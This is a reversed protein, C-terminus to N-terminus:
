RELNVVKKVEPSGTMVGVVTAGEAAAVVRMVRTMVSDSCFLTVAVGFTSVVSVVASSVLVAGAM